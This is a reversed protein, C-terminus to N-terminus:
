TMLWFLTGHSRKFRIFMVKKLSKATIVLSLSLAFAAQIRFKLTQFILNCKTNLVFRNGWDIKTIAIRKIDDM